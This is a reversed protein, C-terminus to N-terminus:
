GAPTRPVSFSVTSCSRMPPSSMIRMLEAASFLTTGSVMTVTIGKRKREVSWRCWTSSPGIPSSIRAEISDCPM